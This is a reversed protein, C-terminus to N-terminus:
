LATLIIKRDDCRASPRAPGGRPRLRPGSATEVVNPQKRTGASAQSDVSSKRSDSESSQRPLSRRLDTSSRREPSERTEPGPSARDSVVRASESSLRVNDSSVRMPESSLRVSETVVRIPESSLRVSESVVRVPESSLRSNDSAVRPDNDGRARVFTWDERLKIVKERVEPSVTQRAALCEREINNYNELIERVDSERDKVSAALSDHIRASEAPPLDRAIAMRTRAEMAWAIAADLRAGYKALASLKGEVLARHEALNSQAVPTGFIRM